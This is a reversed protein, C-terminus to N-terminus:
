DSLAAPVNGTPCSKGENDLIVLCRHLNELGLYNGVRFAHHCDFKETLAAFLNGDCHSSGIWPRRVAVARISRALSIITGHATKSVTSFRDSCCLLRSKLPGALGSLGKM